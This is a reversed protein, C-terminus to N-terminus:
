MGGEAKKEPEEVKWGSSVKKWADETRGFEDGTREYQVQWYRTEYVQKGKVMTIPDCLGYVRLEMKKAYKDVDGFTAVCKVKKGDEIGARLDAATCLEKLDNAKKVAAIAAPDSTDGFTKKTDTRIEARLSPKRADGTKNEVDYLMTWCISTRDGAGAVKVWAPTQNTFGLEWRLGGAVAAAALGLVAGAALGAIRSGRM